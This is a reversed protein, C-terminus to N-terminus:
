RVILKEIKESGDSNIKVFYIGKALKNIDIIQQTQATIGNFTFTNATRGALDFVVINIIGIITVNSSIIFYGQAPNPFIHINAEKEFLRLTDDKITNENITIIDSSERVNAQLIQLWFPDLAISSNCNSFTLTTVYNATPLHPPIMIIAKNSNITGNQQLVVVGENDRLEITYNLANEVYVIYFPNPLGRVFLNPVSIINIPPVSTFNSSNCGDIYADFIAGQQIDMGAINTYSGPSIEQNGIEIFSGARFVVNQGSTVTVPGINSAFCGEANGAKIFDSVLTLSPLSSTNTYCAYQPCCPVPPLPPPLIEVLSVDDILYYALDSLTLNGTNGSLSAINNSGDRFYGIILTFPGSANAVFTTSLEEWTGNATSQVGWDDENNSSGPIFDFYDGQPNSFSQVLNLGINTKYGCTSALSIKMKFEYTAGTSLVVTTALYEGVNSNSSSYTAIGNYAIGDFAFLSGTINDPVRYNINSCNSNFYDASGSNPNTWYTALDGQNPGNMFTSSFNEFSGNQILNQCFTMKSLLVLLLYKSKM